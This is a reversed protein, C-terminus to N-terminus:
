KSISVGCVTARKRSGGVIGGILAYRRDRDGPARTAAFKAVAWSVVIVAGILGLFRWDWWGYFIASAVLLLSLREEKDQLLWYGSFIAALFIFFTADTFIM